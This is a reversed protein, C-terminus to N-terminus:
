LTGSLMVGAEIESLMARLNNKCRKALNLYDAMPRGNLGEASAIEYARQAFVNALGQNTLKITICRSSFPAADIHEDFLDQGANTTTFVVLTNNRLGELIDLLLEICPRNLGHSENIIWAHNGCYMWRNKIEKIANVSLDRAVSRVIDFNDSAFQRALIEALTTKGVGSEGTIYYARGGIGLGSLRSLLKVAKDQGIVEEFNKPRYKESLRM